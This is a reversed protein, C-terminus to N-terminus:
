AEGELAPTGTLYGTQSVRGRAKPAPLKGRDDDATM